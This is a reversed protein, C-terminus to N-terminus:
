PRFIPKGLDKNVLNHADIAWKEYAEQSSLNPPLKKIVERWHSSCKGCPIWRHFIKLWRFETKLDKIKNQTRDHLIKWLRPGWQAPDKRFEAVPNPDSYKEVLKRAVDEGMVIYKGQIKGSSMVEEVYGEPRFASNEKVARILFRVENM